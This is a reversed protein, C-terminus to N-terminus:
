LSLSLKEGKMSFGASRIELNVGCSFMRQNVGLELGEFILGIVISLFFYDLLNHSSDSLVDSPPRYTLPQVM